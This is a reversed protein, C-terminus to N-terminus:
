PPLELRYAVPGIFETIKFPGLRKYDLKACPRTTAIYKRLLWVKDGIKFDPHDMHRHDAQEKQREQTQRLESVLDQQVQELMKVREEALPNMSEGPIDFGFRPHFGYNAFFPSFGTSAHMTNNYAFEAQPLM